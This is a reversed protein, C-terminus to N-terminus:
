DLKEAARALWDRFVDITAARYRAATEGEGVKISLGNMRNVARFADEDTVDDGAFLALRGAFPAEAMFAEVADGKSAKGAKVEVVMKGRVMHLAPLDGLADEIFRLSETESGPARRYHFAVSGLKRELLTGPLRRALEDLRRTIEALADQDLEAKVIGGNGDRRILGHVGAVPLKLPAFHRDIDDLGRGTVIAVAGGLSNVLKGLARRTGPPLAVDDPHQAIDALTGDFDVFVASREPELVAPLDALDLPESM